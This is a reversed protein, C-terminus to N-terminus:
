KEVQPIRLIKGVAVTKGEDRLTFRGMQPFDKFTEICIPGSSQLRCIVVDDTRAFRPKRKSRDGTKRDIMYMLEVVQVEEVCAHVHMVANYGACIINKYDLIVIQVDFLCTTMCMSSLECLLFGPLIDEEEIGKLRLRVNDGCEGRPMMEDNEFLIHMVDVITKNPMMMMQQGATVSGSEIKGLVVTGMDKMKDVIPLRFPGEFLRAVPPLSDLYEIFGPGKYFPCEGTNTKLNAGGLGSVPIYMIDSKPSYGVKKLFPTLKERIEDFRDREWLVTIDDMKNVLVVIHKIGATKVLIAHERTQGKKEFGAEFEGRKASIVLIAIDAQASGTIMNPVFGAHGPADLITFRKKDTEFGARGVDVTKGKDRENQDTDLSWSFAWSERSIEKAEKEYKELTRKDVMGTLYMLHGGITSKGADVHGIFLINVNEKSDTEKISPKVKPFKSATYKSQPKQRVEQDDREKRTKKPKAEIHSPVPKPENNQPPPPAMHIEAKVPNPETVPSPPIVNTAAPQYSEVTYDAEWSDPVKQKLLQAPPEVPAQYHTNNMVVHSVPQQHLDGGPAQNLSSANSMHQNSFRPPAQQEQYVASPPYGYPNMAGGGSPYYGSFRYQQQNWYQNQQPYYSGPLGFNAPTFEPANMNFTQLNDALQNPTPHSHPQQGWQSPQQSM